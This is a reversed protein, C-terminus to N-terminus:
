LGQVLGPPGALARALRQVGEALTAEPYFSFCLRVHSAGAGDGDPYFASGPVYTVGERAAAPALGEGTHGDPLRLWVFFGGDPDTWGAGEPMTQALAAVMAEKRSRYLARLGALRADFDEEALFTAVVTQVFPSVAGDLKVGGLVGIATEPGVIWGLRLGPAITKSFTNLHLVWEHAPSGGSVAALPPPAEATFYLEGYADDEVLWFGYEAALEVLRRRRGAELSVGAPNHFNPVVYLLRPRRGARLAEEVAEVVLGGGDLPFGRVRARYRNFLRIAWVYTPAEVWVQDGPNLLARAVLDLAQSGGTTLMCGEPGVAIGRARSREAVWNKLAGLAPGGGYQLARRGERALARETAGALAAVPFSGPDPLGWALQINDPRLLLRSSEWAAPTAALALASYRARADPTTAM